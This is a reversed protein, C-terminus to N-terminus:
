VRPGLTSDVFLNRKRFPPPSTTLLYLRLRKLDSAFWPEACPEIRELWRPPPIGRHTCATEIMAAVYNAEFPALSSVDLEEFGQSLQNSEENVLLDHLEALLHTRSSSGRGLADIISQLKTTCAPLLRKLVWKSVDEGAVAARVRIQEKQELSVRIQLQSSKVMAAFYHRMKFIDIRHTSM